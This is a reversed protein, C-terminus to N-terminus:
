ERTRKMAYIIEIQIQDTKRLNHARDIEMLCSYVRTHIVINNSASQRKEMGAIDFKKNRFPKLLKERAKVVPM